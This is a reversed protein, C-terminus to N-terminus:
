EILPKRPPLKAGDVNNLPICAISPRYTFPYNPAFCNWFFLFIARILEFQFLFTTPIHAAMQQPPPNRSLVFVAALSVIKDSSKGLQCGCNWFTVPNPNSSDIRYGAPYIRCLKCMTYRVFEEGKTDTYRYAKSEPVSIVEWITETFISVM